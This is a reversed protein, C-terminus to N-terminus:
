QEKAAAAKARGEIRTIAEACAQALRRSRRSFALLGHPAFRRLLELENQGGIRGLARLVGMALLPEQYLRKRKATLMQALRTAAGPPHLNGLWEAALGAVGPDSDELMGALLACADPSRVAALARVVEVRVRADTHRALKRLGGLDAKPGVKGILYAMNRAVYWERCDAKGNLFPLAEEGLESFARTIFMRTSSDEEEALRAFMQEMGQLGLFRLIEVLRVYQPDNPELRQLM